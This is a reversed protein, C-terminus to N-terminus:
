ACLSVCRYVAICLRVCLWVCLWVYGCMAISTGVALVAVRSGRDVLTVGLAEIFTSKGAGPPGAVGVRLSSPSVASRKSLVEAVLLEAQAAHM